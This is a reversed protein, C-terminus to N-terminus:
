REHRQEARKAYVQLRKLMCIYTYKHKLINTLTSFRNIKRENEQMLVLPKFSSYIFTMVPHWTVNRAKPIMLDFRKM